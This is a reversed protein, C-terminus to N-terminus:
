SIDVLLTQPNGNNQQPLTHKEREKSQQGSIKGQINRSHPLVRTSSNQRGNGETNTEPNTSLQQKYKTKDHFTKREGNITISLTSHIQAPM